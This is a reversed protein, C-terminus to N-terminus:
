PCRSEQILKDDNPMYIREDEVLIGIFYPKLMEVDSPRHGSSKYNWTADTGANELLIAAGAPHLDLFDTINYVKDYLIIWCDNYTCHQAVEKLTFRKASNLNPVMRGSNSSKGMVADSATQTVKEILHVWTELM